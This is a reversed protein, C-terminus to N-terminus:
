WPVSSLCLISSLKACFLAPQMAMHLRTMMFLPATFACDSPPPSVIAYKEGRELSDGISEISRISSRSDDRVPEFRVEFGEEEWHSIIVPDFSQSNAAIVLRPAM